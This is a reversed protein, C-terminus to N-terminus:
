DGAPRRDRMVARYVREACADLGERKQLVSSQCIAKSVGFDSVNLLSFGVM